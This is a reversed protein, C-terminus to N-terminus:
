QFLRPDLQSYQNRALNSQLFGKMATVLFERKIISNENLNLQLVKRHAKERGRM